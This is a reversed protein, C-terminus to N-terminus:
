ARRGSLRILHEHGYAPANMSHSFSRPTYEPDALVDPIHVVGGELASRGVVGGRDLSVPHRDLYEQFEPSFGYRAAVRFLEGDRLFIFCDAFIPQQSSWRM